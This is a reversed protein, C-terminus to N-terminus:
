STRGGNRLLLKRFCSSAFLFSRYRQLVTQRKKVNEVSFTTFQSHVHWSLSLMITHFFVIIALTKSLPMTKKIDSLVSMFTKRFMMHLNWDNHFRHQCVFRSLRCTASCDVTTLFMELIKTLAASNERRWFTDCSKFVADSTELVAVGLTQVFHKLLKAVFFFLQACTLRCTAVHQCMMDFHTLFHWLKGFLTLISLFNGFSLNQPIGNQYRDIGGKQGGFGGKQGGFGGFFPDFVGM